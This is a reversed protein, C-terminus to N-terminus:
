PRPLMRLILNLLNLQSEVRFNSFPLSFASPGTHGKFQRVTKIPRRYKIQTENLENFM